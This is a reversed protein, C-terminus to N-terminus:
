VLLLLVNAIFRKYKNLAKYIGRDRDKGARSSHEQSEMLKEIQDQCEIKQVDEKSTNINTLSKHQIKCQRPV